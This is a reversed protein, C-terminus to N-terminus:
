AAKLLQILKDAQAIYENSRAADAAAWRAAAAAWRADAASPWEGDAYLDAVGQIADRVQQNDGAFRMVGHEPDLMLWHAFKPWIKTLDAGPRIASLFREPWKLSLENPLGEFIRDELGAVIQPIGLEREYASHDSSHVTCGVACGKGNEWYKGKILEDAMQHAIVRSLYKDKVTQDNHFAKM